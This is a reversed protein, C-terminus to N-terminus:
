TTPPLVSSICIELIHQDHIGLAAAVDLFEIMDLHREGGEFKSVFQQRVGLLKALETQTLGAAKRAERLRRIARDYRQSRTEHDVM